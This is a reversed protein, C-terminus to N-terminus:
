NKSNVGLTRNRNKHRVIHVSVWYKLNVWRWYFKLRRIPSHEAMILRRKWKSDPMKGTDKGITNMTTDKIDQWDTISKLNDIRM